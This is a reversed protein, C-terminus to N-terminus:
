IIAVQTLALNPSSVPQPPNKLNLTSRRLPYFPIHPLSISTSLSISPSLLHQCHIIIIINSHHILFLFSPPLLVIYVFKARVNAWWMLGRLVLVERWGGRGYTGIGTGPAQFSSIKDVARILFCPPVILIVFLRQSHRALTKRSTRVLCLLRVGM